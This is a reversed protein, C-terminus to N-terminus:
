NVDMSAEVARGQANIVPLWFETTDRNILNQIEELRDPNVTVRDDGDVPLLIEVELLRTVGERLAESHRQPLGATLENAEVWAGGVVGRAIMRMLLTRLRRAQQNWHSRAGVKLPRNWSEIDSQRYWAGPLTEEQVIDAVPTEIEPGQQESLGEEVPPSLELGYRWAPLSIEVVEIQLGPLQDRLGAELAARTSETLTTKGAYEALASMAAYGVWSGTELAAFYWEESRALGELARLVVSAVATESADQITDAPFPMLWHVMDQEPDGVVVVSLRAVLDELLRAEQTEGEILPAVRARLRDHEQLLSSRYLAPLASLVRDKDREFERYNQLAAALDPDDRLLGERQARLESVEVLRNGFAALSDALTAFVRMVVETEARPRQSSMAERRSQLESSEATLADLRQRLADLQLLLASQEQARAAVEADLAGLDSDFGERLTTLQQMLSDHTMM